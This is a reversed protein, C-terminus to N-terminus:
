PMVEKCRRQNHRQELWTAWRCNDPAYDGNPDIRDLTLDERYGNALAWTRFDAFNDWVTSFRIGRGGYETFDPCKPNRCRQRANKWINYLRTGKGGHKYQRAAAVEDHLCGCSKTRGNLLKYASDVITENGCDCLCRWRIHRNKSSPLPELAILRGFRQNTLDKM